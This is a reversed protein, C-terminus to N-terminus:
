EHWVATNGGGLSPCHGWRILHGSRWGTSSATWTRFVPLYRQMLCRKWTRRPLHQASWILCLMCRRLVHTRRKHSWQVSKTSPWSSSFTSTKASTLRHAWWCSPHAHVTADSRLCGNRGSMKSRPHHSSVSACCSSTLMPTACLDFNTLSMRSLFHLFFNTLPMLDILPYDQIVDSTPFTNM